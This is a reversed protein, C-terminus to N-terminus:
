VRYIPLLAFWFLYSREWEFLLLANFSLIVSWYEVYLRAFSGVLRPSKGIWRTSLSGSPPGQPEAAKTKGLMHEIFEVDGLRM